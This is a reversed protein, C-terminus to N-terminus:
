QLAAFSDQAGNVVRGGIGGGGGMVFKGNWDDPLLLEFNTQTGIVGALKCHPAPESEAVASLLQVDPLSPFSAIECTPQALAGGAITCGAVAAFVSRLVQNNM